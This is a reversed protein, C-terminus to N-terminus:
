PLIVSRNDIASRILPLVGDGGRQLNRSKVEHASSSFLRILGMIRRIGEVREPPVSAISRAVEHIRRSFISEFGSMYEEESQSIRRFPQRSPKEILPPPYGARYSGGLLPGFEFSETDGAVHEVRRGGQRVWDGIQVTHGM